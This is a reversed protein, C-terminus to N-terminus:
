TGPFDPENGTAAILVAYRQTIGHQQYVLEVIYHTMHLVAQEGKEIRVLMYFGLRPFYVKVALQGDAPLERVYHVTCATIEPVVLM